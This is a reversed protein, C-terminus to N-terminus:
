YQLIIASLRFLPALLHSGQSGVAADEPKAGADVCVCAMALCYGAKFTLCCYLFQQFRHKRQPRELRGWYFPLSWYNVTSLRFQCLDQIHQIYM